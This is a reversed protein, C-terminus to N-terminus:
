RYRLVNREFAMDSYGKSRQRNKEDDSIDADSDDSESENAMRRVALERRIDRTMEDEDSV